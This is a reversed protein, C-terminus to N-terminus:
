NTILDILKKRLSEKARSVTTRCNAYSINLLQGLRLTDLDSILSPTVEIDYAAQNTALLISDRDYIVGRPAYVKQIRQANNAADLTYTPDIIQIYFLRAIFVLTLGILLTLFLRGRM